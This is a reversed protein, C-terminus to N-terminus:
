ALVILGPSPLVKAMMGTTIFIGAGIVVGVVLMTSDFLGPQRVLGAKEQTEVESKQAVVESRNKGASNM